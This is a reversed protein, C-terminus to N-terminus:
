VPVLKFGFNEMQYIYRGDVKLLGNAYLAPVPTDVMKTIVVDVEIRKNDPVIQGRYSWAHPKDMIWEFRHTNVLQPWRKIAAFKILQLFSEIGLSGPCVPDQFFHAKFFWEDPDVTKVGRIFGLGEPGGDPIFVDIKDIMRLAKAPMALSPAPDTDPDEPFLPATDEFIFPQLPRRHDLSPTYAQEQANRIGVQQALAQKTFFGFYTDGSYITQADQFVAFDFHEIIMEAADSVKTMRARITLTTEEPFIMRHLVANGGLNRFKLDNESKLASGLYAALWGCPQLAAELLICFPMSSSRDAKFYWAAPSIDYEAEIWGGPKLIWADPEVAVIRDLFSYPPGPLRAIVRDTDFVKYPDGFAESPKGVAFALIKGRDYLVTKRNDGPASNLKLIARKSKHNNITSQQNFTDSQEPLKFKRNIQRRGRDKGKWITEIEAGTVGTMKMSMNKFSVIRHGDATMLADAIVFPEPGYGIEKIDIDYWVKHTEPTVPGRCKLISQVGIMPEYCVGPKPTVWGMRQIFVRLTHACCEYM